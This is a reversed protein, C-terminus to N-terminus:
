RARCPARAAAACRTRTAAARGATGRTRARRRRRPRGSRSPMGRATGSRAAASSGHRVRDGGPVDEADIRRRAARAHRQLSEIEVDGCALDDDDEPRAARPLRRQQADDAPKSRGDAPLTWTRPRSRPSSAPRASAGSGTSRAPSGRAASCARARGPSTACSRTAWCSASSPARRAVASRPRVLEEVADPRARGRRCGARRARPRRAAACRPRRRSRGSVVGSGRPRAWRRLEVALIGGDDVAQQALEDAAFPQVANITLWSRAAVPM